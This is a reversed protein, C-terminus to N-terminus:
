FADFRVMKQNDPKEASKSYKLAKRKEAISAAVCGGHCGSCSVISLLQMLGEIWVGAAEEAGGLADSNTHM